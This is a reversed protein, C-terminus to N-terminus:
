KLQHWWVIYRALLDNVTGSSECALRLPSYVALYIRHATPDVSTGAKNTVFLSAPGCSLVYLVLLVVAWVVYRLGGRGAQEPNDSM